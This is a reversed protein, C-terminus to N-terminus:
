SRRYGFLRDYAGHDLIRVISVALGHESSDLVTYLVRWGNPLELRWLNELDYKRRLAAPILAGRIHEGVAVDEGLRRAWWELKRRQVPDLALIDREADESLWVEAKM